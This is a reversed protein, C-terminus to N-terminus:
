IGCIRKLENFRDLKVSSIDRGDLGVIRLFRYKGFYNILDEIPNLDYKDRYFFVRTVPDDIILGNTLPTEPKSTVHKIRYRVRDLYISDVQRNDSLGTGSGDAARDLEVSMVRGSSAIIRVSAQAIVCKNPIKENGVYKLEDLTWGGFQKLAPKEGARGSQHSTTVDPTAM